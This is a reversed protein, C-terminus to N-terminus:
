RNSVPRVPVPLPGSNVISAFVVSMAGKVNGSIQASDSVPATILPSAVLAGDLFIGLRQNVHHSTFRHFSEPDAFSLTIAPEGVEDYGTKASMIPRGSRPSYSAGNPYIRLTVIGRPALLKEAVATAEQSVVAVVRGRDARVRGEVRADRLRQEMIAVTESLASASFTDSGAAAFTLTVVKPGSPALALLLGAIVLIM